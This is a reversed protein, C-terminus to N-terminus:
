ANDYNRESNRLKRLKCIVFYPSPDSNDPQMITASNPEEVKEVFLYNQAFLNFYESLTHHYHQYQNPKDIVLGSEFYKSVIRATPKETEDLLSYTNPPNEFCPHTISVVIIGGPKTVRAIESVVRDLNEIDMLVMNLLVIDFVNNEFPLNVLNGVEFTVNAPVGREKAKAILESTFDIGAVKNATKSLKRSWYGNGSGGDLITQGSVDGLLKEVIPNIIFQHSSDGNEEVTTDYVSSISSWYQHNNSM